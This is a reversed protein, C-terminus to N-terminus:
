LKELNDLVNYIEQKRLDKPFKNMIYRRALLQADPGLALAQKIAQAIAKPDGYATYIGTDGVVEPLSGRNTVVPICGKLMAEAVACGFGEHASVQVIVSTSEMIGNLEKVFGLIEVNQSAISKLYHVAGDVHEGILLFRVEPLYQAAAVFHEIGKRKLNSFNVIGLCVAIKEKKKEPDFPVPQFGLYITKIKAIPVRVNKILESKALNSAALVQNALSFVLRGIYKRIGPRMNGYEIEPMNAIDYGCAVIIVKRKLIRGIVAPILAHFAGFWCFIVHAGMVGKVSLYISKWIHNLGRRFWLERVNYKEKLLNLDAVVFTSPYGHVFLINMPNRGLGFGALGGDGNKLSEQNRM